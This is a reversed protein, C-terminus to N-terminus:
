LVSGRTIVTQKSGKYEEHAKIKARVTVKEGPRKELHRSAFWKIKNGDSDVFMYLYTTGFNGEIPLVSLVTLDSLTVTTGVVGVYHSPKRTNESEAAIDRMWINVAAAIYAYMKPKIFESKLALQVNYIFDNGENSKAMIHPKFGELEKRIVEMDLGEYMEEKVKKSPNIDWATPNRMPDEEAMKKSTYGHKLISAYADEIAEDTSYLWYSSPIGEISDWDDSENIDGLSNMYGILSDVSVAPLFDKLCTAGVMMQRGDEHVIWYGNKKLRKSNCHDCYLAKTRLMDLPFFDKTTFVFNQGAIDSPQIKSHIAWGDLRPTDGFLEIEVYEVTIKQEIARGMDDQGVIINRKELGREVETLEIPPLNWRIAKKNFKEIMKELQPMRFALIKM